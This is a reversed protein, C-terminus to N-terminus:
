ASARSGGRIRDWERFLPGNSPNARAQRLLERGVVLFGGLVAGLLLAVVLVVPLTPGLPNGPVRAADLVTVTPLNNRADIQADALAATLSVVVQEDRTYERLLRTAQVRLEPADRMSVFVDGSGAVGGLRRLQARATALAAEAARLEPHDPTLTRRLAAVDIERRLIEQQLDAAAEVTQRAQEQLDPAAQETQFEVLRAETEALRRGALELQEELFEQKRLAAEASLRAMLVNVLEPIENAIRAALEPDRARTLLRVSGDPRTDVETEYALANRIEMARRVAAEDEGPALRAVMSDALSQSGIVVGILQQNSGGTVGFMAPIGAPLASGLVQSQLDNGSESAVLLARAAYDRPLLIALPLAVLAAGVATAAVVRWNALLHAGLIAMRTGGEAPGGGHAENFMTLPKDVENKPTM